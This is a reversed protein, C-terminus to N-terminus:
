QNPASDTIMNEIKKNKFLKEKEKQPLYKQALLLIGTPGKKIWLNLKKNDGKTELRLWLAVTVAGWKKTFSAESLGLMLKKEEAQDKVKSLKIMRDVFVPELRNLIKFAKPSLESPSSYWSSSFSYYNGLGEFWCVFLARKLPTNANYPHQQLWIHTLIHTYEHSLIHKIRAKSAKLNVHNPIGYNDVWSSLDCCITNCNYSFGDNGGNNGFLITLNKPYNDIEFPTNLKQWENSMSPIVEKFLRLWTKEKETLPTLEKEIKKIKKKQHRDSIAAIWKSSQKGKNNIGLELTVNTNGYSHISISYFCIFFYLIISNRLM